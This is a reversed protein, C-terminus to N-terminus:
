ETKDKNLSSNSLCSVIRASALSFSISHIKSCYLMKMKSRKSISRLNHCVLGHKLYAMYVTKILYLSLMLFVVLKIDSVKHM